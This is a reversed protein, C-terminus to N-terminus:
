VGRSRQMLAALEARSSVGMMEFISQRRRDLTRRSLSLRDCIFKNSMGAILCELVDREECSLQEYRAVIAVIEEEKGRRARTREVARRVADILAEPAFPKEIVTVAGQQMLQVAMPVDAYGSMFVVSLSADASCLKQQFETGDILPMRWDTVVCGLRPTGLSELAAAPSTFTQCDFEGASELIQRTVQCIAPDDDVVFVCDRETM